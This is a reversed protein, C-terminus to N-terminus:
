HITPTTPANTRYWSLLTKGPDAAEWVQRVIMRAEPDAEDLAILALYADFFERGYLENAINMRADFAAAEDADTVNM